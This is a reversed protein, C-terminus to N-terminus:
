DRNICPVTISGNMIFRVKANHGKKLLAQDLARQLTTFKEIDAVNLRAAPLSTIIYIDAWERLHALNVANHDGLRYTRQASAVANPICELQQFLRAFSEPGLGRSCQSVVILVGGKRLTIRGHEISKLTQYLDIDFPKQAVTVVIDAHAAVKVSFAARAIRTAARFTHEVSGAFAAYIHDNHDLVMQVSSIKIPKLMALCDIMEEHVPNGTINLPQAKPHLAFRHNQEITRYGAIGPLISKRGGTFGAFYHPEVSGIVLIRKFRIIEKNLWIETGHRTKGFYALSHRDRADHILIRKHYKGYHEGFILRLERKTPARHAGTAVLFEINRMSTMRSFATLVSSTKTPRTADNVIILTPYKAGLIEHWKQASSSKRLAQELVYPDNKPAIDQPYLIDLLNNKPISIKLSKKGYPVRIAM